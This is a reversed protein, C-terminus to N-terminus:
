TTEKTQHRRELVVRCRKCDFPQGRMSVSILAGAALPIALGGDPLVIPAGGGDPASGDGPGGGDNSSSCAVFVAFTAGLVAGPVLAAARMTSYRQMMPVDGLGLDGALDAFQFALPVVEGDVEGRRGALFRPLRRVDQRDPTGTM